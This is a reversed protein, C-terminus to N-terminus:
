CVQRLRCPQIQKGSNIMAASVRDRSERVSADPLGIIEMGPIGGTAFVEVHVPYGDTGSVGMSLTQAIMENM